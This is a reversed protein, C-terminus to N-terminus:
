KNKTQAINSPLRVIVKQKNTSSHLHKVGWLFWKLYEKFWPLLSFTSKGGYLRDISVIPVEGFKMGADQAKIALEFAIAWGVPKAELSIRDFITKRFMKIGTTADTFDSGSLIRFIRNGYRSLIGEIFSGGLRRGGHAYRTCSVLDCGEDMLAIMDDIALVPGIEDVAFVLICEGRAADVGARIANPIGRGLTNHVLKVHSYEPQLRRVVPVSDDDPSDYVILIEHPVEIVARLIKLMIGINVGENRVPMLISLKIKSTDNTM